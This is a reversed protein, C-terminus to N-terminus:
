CAGTIELELLKDAAEKEETVKELEELEEEEEKLERDDRVYEVDEVDVERELEVELEDEEM